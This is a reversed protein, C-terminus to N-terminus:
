AQLNRSLLWSTHSQSWAKRIAIAIILCVWHLRCPDSAVWAKLTPIVARGRPLSTGLLTGWLWSRPRKDDWSRTFHVRYPSECSNCQWTWWTWTHCLWRRDFSAAPRQSNFSIIWARPKGKAVLLSMAATTIYMLAEHWNTIHDTTCKWYLLLMIIICSTHVHEISQLSKRTM